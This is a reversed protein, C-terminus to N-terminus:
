WELDSKLGTAYLNLIKFQPNVEIGNQVRSDFLEGVGATNRGIIVTM